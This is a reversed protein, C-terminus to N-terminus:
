GPAREERPIASSQHMVEHQSCNLEKWYIRITRFVQLYDKVMSKENDERLCPLDQVNESKNVRAMVFYVRQARTM